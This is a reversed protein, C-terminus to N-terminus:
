REYQVPGKLAKRHDKVQQPSLKGLDALVLVFAEVAEADFQKGSNEILEEIAEPPPLRKRYPKESTMSQYADVIALIKSGVPIEATQLGMPYGHGDVREHHHLIIHSVLEVFEINPFTTLWGAM